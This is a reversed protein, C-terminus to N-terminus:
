AGHELTNNVVCRHGRRRDLANHEAGALHVIVQSLLALVLIHLVNGEHAHLLHTLLDLRSNLDHQMGACERGWRGREWTVGDM